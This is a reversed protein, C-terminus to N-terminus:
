NANLGHPIQTHLRRKWNTEREVVFDKTADPGLLQLISFTFNQPDRGRLLANGGHGSKGYSQWRGLINETGYASGVYSKGDSSDFIVYIGRWQSIKDCWSKPLLGLDVWGLQLDEWSKMQLDFASEERIAKVAFSNNEAKRFWSRESTWTILLKGRLHAMKALPACDFFDVKGLKIAQEDTFGLYGLKRLQQHDPNEWFESRTLLRHGFVEYLGVFDATGSSVGIFSAIFKKTKISKAALPGQASQYTNFLDPREQAIWPLRRKLEREQPVHRLLIVYEAAVGEISLLHNFNLTM